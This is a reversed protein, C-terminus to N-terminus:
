ALVPRRGRLPRAALFRQLLRDIERQSSLCFRARSARNRGVRIALLKSDNHGRFVTEDTDDDGIYVVTDCVLLRRAHEVADGKDPAGRPVVSVACVGDLSRAKPLERVARHIRRLANRRDRAHRYHVTVSYTKNEIVVGGVGALREELKQIWRAILAPDHKGHWWPELGHNGALHWVPVSGVRKVLDARSRGSIVVAPYRRAIAALLRRTEPRMRARSPESAIPALTGDYDFALLVNSSAFSAITSTHRGSLINQM